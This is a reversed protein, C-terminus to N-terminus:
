RKIVPLYLEQSTVDSVAASCVLADINDTKELGLAKASVSVRLPSARLLDAASASLATLTPSGPALSFLLQDGGDYVGDGDDNICLADIMDGTKLGLDTVGKAWVVPAFDAGTMLIDATTADILTLTPSGPALTLFIPEEPIGDCNIDVSHCPDPALADVNDATAGEVLSLGFGQNGSCPTGDGDLDQINTGDLATEFVDAQAQAPSCDAEARVGTNAKGRSAADVSFQLPPLESDTFDIGFSLGRIDDAVGTAADYCALGLNECAILPAGGAGLIDAPHVGTATSPDARAVSFSEGQVTEPPTRVAAPPGQGAMSLLALPLAVILLRVPKIAKAINM